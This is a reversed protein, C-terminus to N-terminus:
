ATFRFFGVNRNTVHAEEISSILVIQHFQQAFFMALENSNSLPIGLLSEKFGDAVFLRLYSGSRRLRFVRVSPSFFPQFHLTRGM